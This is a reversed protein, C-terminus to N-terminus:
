DHLARRLSRIKSPIDDAMTIETVMAFIKAGARRVLAINSEKIGGMVSVPVPVGSIWVALNELGVPNALKEKTLTPFIPGINIMSAGGEVAESIEAPSHTSVGILLNPWLQSAKTFPFDTQGLHVGDAEVALAVDVRDNIILLTGSDATIRRAQESLRYFSLADMEKERMQVVQIGAGVLARLIELPDRGNCFKSTLVPYIDASAFKRIKESKEM